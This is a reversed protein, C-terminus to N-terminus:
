PANEMEQFKSCMYPSTAVGGIFNIWKWSAKAKEKAIDINYRPHNCQPCRKGSLFNSPSVNYVHGCNNHKIVIPTKASIYESLVEYEDGTLEKVRNLFDQHTVKKSM